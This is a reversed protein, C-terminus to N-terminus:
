RYVVVLAVMKKNINSKKSTIRSKLNDNNSHNDKSCAEEVFVLLKGEFLSNFNTYLEKNDGVVICYDEGIIQNGFIEILINKGTGGGETLLDGEDRILAAVEAKKDPNQIINAFLKLLFGNNGKTLYDM